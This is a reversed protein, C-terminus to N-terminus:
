KDRFTYKGQEDVFNYGADLMQVDELTMENVRGSGNTTRDVTEDHIVVLQGDSTIHTDYEFVDVGLSSANEFAAMTGEPALGRGGRHAIVLIEPDDARYFAREPREKAPWLFIALWAAGVISAFAAFVKLLKKM